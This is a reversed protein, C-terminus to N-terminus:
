WWRCHRYGYRWWCHRRHYRWYRRHYYHRHYYHRYYVKEAISRQEMKLAPVGSGLAAADASSVSGAGALAIMGFLIILARRMM